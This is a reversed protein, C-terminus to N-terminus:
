RLYFCRAKVCYPHGDVATICLRAGGERIEKENVKEEGDEEVEKQEKRDEGGCARELATIPSSLSDSTTWMSVRMAFPRSHQVGTRRLLLVRLVGQRENLALDCPLHSGNQQESQDRFDLLASYTDGSLRLTKNHQHINRGRLRDGTDWLCVEVGEGCRFLMMYETLGIISTEQM